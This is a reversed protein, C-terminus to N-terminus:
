GGAPADPRADRAQPAQRRPSRPAAHAPQLAEHLDTVNPIVRDIGTIALVRVVSASAPMVLRLERSDALARKHARILVGVGSSACFRTRTMDVVYAASGRAAAERLVAQLWDANSLDIEEPAAVVPVGNVM